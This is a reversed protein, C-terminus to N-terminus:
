QAIGADLHRSDLNGTDLDCGDVDGSDMDCPDVDQRRGHLQEADDFDGELLYRTAPMEIAITATTWVTPVFSLAVKVLM